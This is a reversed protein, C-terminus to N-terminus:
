FPRIALNKGWSYLIEEHNNAEFFSFRAPNGVEIIKGEQIGLASLANYSLAAWIEGINMGLSKASICAILLLHDCHCSGPNFDSALAVKCGADLFKRAPALNKGLFYATGPLLNVVTNTKAIAKIGQDNSHLCHEVSLPNFSLINNIGDHDSFEDVHAKVRIGLGLARKCLEQTEQASFYGEEHFIDVADLTHLQHLELMLPIVTENIFEFPKNKDLPKAHAAMFTNLIRIKPAFHSKLKHIMLSIKRENEYDGGYGSKIEITGVGLSYMREIRECSLNWLEVEEIAKTARMTELIGGGMKAIQQYDVGNLKEGYEKARNGAFVLHTHVDAIEPTIVWHTGDYEQIIKSYFVKPINKQEGIWHIIKDDFIISVNELISLDQAVIHRGDKKEVGKLTLLQAINKILKM